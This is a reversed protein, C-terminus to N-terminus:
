WCASRRPVIGTIVNSATVALDLNRRHLGSHDRTPRRPVGGTFVEVEFAKSLIPDCRGSRLPAAHTAPPPPQRTSPPSACPTGYAPRAVGRTPNSGRYPLPPM